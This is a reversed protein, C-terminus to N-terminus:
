QLTVVVVTMSYPALSIELVRKDNADRHVVTEPTIAPATPESESYRNVRLPVDALDTDFAVVENQITSRKNMLYLSVHHQTDRWALGMSITADESEAVDILSVNLHHLTDGILKLAYFMPFKQYTGNIASAISARPEVGVKEYNGGFGPYGYTYTYGAIISEILYQSAILGKQWDTPPQAGNAVQGFSNAHPIIDINPYGKSAVYQRFWTRIEALSGQGRDTIFALQMAPEQLWENWTRRYHMSTTMYSLMPGMNTLLIELDRRLNRIMNSPLPMVKGGRRSERFQVAFSIKYSKTNAFARLDSFYLRLATAIWQNKKLHKPNQDAERWPEQGSDWGAWLEEGIQVVPNPPGGLDFYQKLMLRNELFQLDRASYLAAEAVPMPTGDIRRPAPDRYFVKHGGINRWLEPSRWTFVLLPATHTNKLVYVFSSLTVLETAPAANTPIYLPDWINGPATTSFPGKEFYVTHDNDFHFRPVNNHGAGPWRLAGVGSDIVSQLFLPTRVFSHSAVRNLLGQGYVTAPVSRIVTRTNVHITADPHNIEVETIPSSLCGTVLAFLAVIPPLVLPALSSRLNMNILM